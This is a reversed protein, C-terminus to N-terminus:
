ATKAEKGTCDIEEVEQPTNVSFKWLELEWTMAECEAKFKKKTTGYCKAWHAVDKPLKGNEVRCLEPQSCGIRAAMREQTMEKRRDLKKRRLGLPTEM